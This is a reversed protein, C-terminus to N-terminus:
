NLSITGHSRYYAVVLGLGIASEAGAISIIYIGIGLGSVDQYAHSSFLILLTAGLLMVEIALLALLIHRRNLIFGLLGVIFLLISLLMIKNFYYEKQIKVTTEAVCTASVVTLIYTVLVKFKVCYACSDKKETNYLFLYLTSKM